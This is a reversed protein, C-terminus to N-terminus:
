RYCLLSTSHTHSVSALAVRSKITAMLPDKDAGCHGLVKSLSSTDSVWSPLSNGVLGGSPCSKGHFDVSLSVQHRWLIVFPGSYPVLDDYNKALPLELITEHFFKVREETSLLLQRLTSNACRPLQGISLHVAVFGVSGGGSRTLDFEVPTRWVGSVAVV